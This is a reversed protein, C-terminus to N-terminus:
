TRGPRPDFDIILRALEPEAVLKAARKRSVWQRRRQGAEPFKKALSKVQVPYLMALCPLGGSKDM